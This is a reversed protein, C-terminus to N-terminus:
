VDNGRRVRTEFRYALEPLSHKTGTIALDRIYEDLMALVEDADLAGGDHAALLPPVADWAGRLVKEVIPEKVRWLTHVEHWPTLGRMEFRAREARVIRKGLAELAKLVLVDCVALVTARSMPELPAACCPCTEM